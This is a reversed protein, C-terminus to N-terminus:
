QVQTNQNINPRAVPIIQNGQNADIKQPQNQDPIMQGKQMMINPQNTNQYDPSMNGRYDGNSRKEQMMNRYDGGKEWHRDHTLKGGGNHSCINAILSVFLLAALIGIILNKKQWFEQLHKKM